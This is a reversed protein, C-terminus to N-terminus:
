AVAQQPPRQRSRHKGTMFPPLLGISAQHQLDCPPRVLPITLVSRNGPRVRNSIPTTSFRMRYTMHSM